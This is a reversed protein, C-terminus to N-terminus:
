SRKKLIYMPFRELFPMLLKPLKVVRGNAAIEVLNLGLDSLQRSENWINNYYQFFRGFSHDEIRWHPGIRLRKINKLLIRWGVKTRPIALSNHSSYILFGGPKVVRMMEMLARHREELSSFNDMGNFSFFVADFTNDSFKLKAADMVEFDIEPYLERARKILPEALDIGIVKCKNKYIFDTTRGAGCGVDLVFSGPPMYKKIVYEESSRLYKSSFEKVAKAGSFSRINEDKINKM